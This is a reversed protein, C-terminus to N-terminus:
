VPWMGEAFASFMWALVKEAVALSLKEWSFSPFFILPNDVVPNLRLLSASISLLLIAELQL